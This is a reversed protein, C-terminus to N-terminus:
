GPERIIKKEKDLRFTKSEMVVISSLGALGILKTLRHPREHYRCSALVLDLSMVAGLFIFLLSDPVWKFIKKGALFEISKEGFCAWGVITTYGFLILGVTVIIDGGPIMSRFAQMVLLAGNLAKGDADTMGM